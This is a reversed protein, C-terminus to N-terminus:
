LSNIPKRIKKNLHHLGFSKRVKAATAISVTTTTASKGTRSGAQNPVRMLVLRVHNVAYKLGIANPLAKSVACILM